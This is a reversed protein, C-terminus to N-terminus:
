PRVHGTTAGYTYINEENGSINNNQVNVRGAQWLLLGCAEDPGTYNFGSVTNSKM